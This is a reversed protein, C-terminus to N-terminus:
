KAANLDITGLDIIAPSAANIEVPIDASNWQPGDKFTVERADRPASGNQESSSPIHVVYRGFPLGAFQFGHTFSLSSERELKRGDQWLEYNLDYANVEARQIHGQVTGGPSLKVEVTQPHNALTVEPITWSAAGPIEIKLGYRGEQVAPLEIRSGAPATFNVSYFSIFLSPSPDLPTLTIEIEKGAYAPLAQPYSILLILPQARIPIPIIGAEPLPLPVTAQFLLSPLPRPHLSSSESTLILKTIKQKSNGRVKAPLEFYGQADSVVSNSWGGGSAYEVGYTIKSPAVPRGAIQLAFRIPPAPQYDPVEAGRARLAEIAIEAIRRDSHAVLRSLAETTALTNFHTLANTVQALNYSEQEPGAWASLANLVEEQVEAPLPVSRAPLTPAPIDILSGATTESLPKKAKPGLATMLASALTDNPPKTLPLCTAILQVGHPSGTRAVRSILHGRHLDGYPDSAQGGLYVTEWDLGFYELLRRRCDHEPWLPQGSSGNEPIELAAGLAEPLRRQQLLLMLMLVSKPEQLAERGNGCWNGWQFQQLLKPAEVTDGSLFAGAAQWFIDENKIFSIYPGDKGAEVWSQYPARITEWLRAAVQLEEPLAQIRESPAQNSPAFEPAPGPESTIADIERDLWPQALTFLMDRRTHNDVPLRAFIRALRDVEGRGGLECAREFVCGLRFEYRSRHADTESADPLPFNELLRALDDFGLSSFGGGKIFATIYEESPLRIIEDVSLRPPEDQAPSFGAMGLIALALPIWRM